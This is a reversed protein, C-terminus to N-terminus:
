DDHWDLLQQRIQLYSCFHSSNFTLIGIESFLSEFFSRKSQTNLLMQIRKAKILIKTSVNGTHYKIKIQTHNKKVMSLIYHHFLIENINFKQYHLILNHM